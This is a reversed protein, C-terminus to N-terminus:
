SRSVVTPASSFLYPPSIILLFSRSSARHLGVWSTIQSLLAALDRTDPHEGTTDKVATWVGGVRVRRGPSQPRGQSAERSSLVGVLSTLPQSLVRHVAKHEVMKNPVSRRGGRWKRGQPCLSSYRLSTRGSPGPFLWPWLRSSQFIGM